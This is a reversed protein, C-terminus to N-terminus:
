SFFIDFILDFLVEVAIAADANTRPTLQGAVENACDSLTAM